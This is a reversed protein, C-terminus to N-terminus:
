TIQVLGTIKVSNVENSASPDQITLSSNLIWDAVM